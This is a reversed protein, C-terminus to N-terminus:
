YGQRDLLNEIAKFQMSNFFDDMAKLRAANETSSAIFAKAGAETLPVYRQNNFPSAIRDDMKRFRSLQFLMQYSEARMHEVDGGKDSPFSLAYDMIQKYYDFMDCLVEYAKVQDGLYSYIYM